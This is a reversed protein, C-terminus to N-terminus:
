VLFAIDYIYLFQMHAHSLSLPTPTPSQSLSSALDGIDVGPWYFIVKCYKKTLGSLGKKYLDNNRHATWQLINLPSTSNEHFGMLGHSQPWGLNQIMLSYLYINIFYLSTVVLINGNALGPYLSCGLSSIKIYSHSILLAKQKLCFCLM